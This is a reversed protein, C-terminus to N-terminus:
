YRRFSVTVQLKDETHAKTFSLVSGITTNTYVRIGGNDGIFVDKKGDCNYDRLLMWEVAKPFYKRYEPAYKFDPNGSTKTDIYTTVRSGVKDFVVLDERGDNNLDMTSVQGFNIGGAWPNKIVQNNKLVVVGPDENFAFRNQTQQANACVIFLSAIGFVFYRM